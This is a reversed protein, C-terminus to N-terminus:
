HIKLICLNPRQTTSKLENSAKIIISQWKKTEFPNLGYNNTNGPIGMMRMILDRPDGYYDSAIIRKMKNLNGDAILLIARSLQVWGVNLTDQRVYDIMRLAEQYETEIEFDHKLRLIIDKPIQKKNETMSNQSKQSYISKNECAILFSACLFLILLSCHFNHTRHGKIQTSLM